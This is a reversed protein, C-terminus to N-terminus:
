QQNEKIFLEAKEKTDFWDTYTDAHRGEFCTNQPITEAEKEGTFFGVRHPHVIMTVSYFTKM